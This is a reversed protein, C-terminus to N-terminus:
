DLDDVAELEFNQHKNRRKIIDHYIQDFELQLQQTHFKIAKNKIIEVDEQGFITKNQFNVFQELLDIDEVTDFPMDKSEEEAQQVKTHRENLDEKKATVQNKSLKKELAIQYLGRPQNMKEAQSQLTKKTQKEKIHRKAQAKKEQFTRQGEKIASNFNELHPSRGQHMLEIMGTQNRRNPRSEKQPKSQTHYWDKHQHLHSPLPLVEEKSEPEPEKGLTM